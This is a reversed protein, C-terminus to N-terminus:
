EKALFYKKRALRCQPGFWPKDSPKRPTNSPSRRNAKVAEAGTQFINSIKEVLANIDQSTCNYKANELLIMVQEVEKCNINNAFCDFESTKINSLPVSQPDPTLIRPLKHEATKIKLSLLAHGDSFLRDVETICFNQLFEVGKSSTIAYDIVSSERFTLEGVNKDQGYRGNLLTLNNNKCTDILKFGHNNKKRIKLLERYSFESIKWFM